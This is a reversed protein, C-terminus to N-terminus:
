ECFTLGSFLSGIVKTSNSKRSRGPPEPESNTRRIPRANRSASNTQEDVPQCETLVKRLSPVGTKALEAVDNKKKAKNHEAPILEDDPKVVGEVRRRKRAQLRPSADESETSEDLGDLGDLRAFFEKKEDQDTPM